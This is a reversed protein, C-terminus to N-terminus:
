ATAYIGHDVTQPALCQLVQSESALLETSLVVGEPLNRAYCRTSKLYLMKSLYSNINM